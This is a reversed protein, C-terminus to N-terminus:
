EAIAVAATSKLVLTSVPLFPLIFNFSYSVQVQVVCGPSDAGSASDCSSGSPTTGPWTTTVTVKDATVGPPNLSNVYNSIDSNSATCGYTASTTCTAGNWSSGRVMAYRTASSAATAVYHDIYVARSCDLVGFVMALTVAASLAFEVQMSGSADQLLAHHWRVTETTQKRKVM